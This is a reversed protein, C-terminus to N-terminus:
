QAYPIVRKLFTRIDGSHGPAYGPLSGGEVARVQDNTLKGAEMVEGYDSRVAESPLGVGDNDAELPAGLQRLQYVLERLAHRANKEPLDPFLLDQLAARTTHRGREAALYLLLAFKKTSTPKLLHDGVAIEAAGLTRVVIM